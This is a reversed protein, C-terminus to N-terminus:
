TSCRHTPSRFNTQSIQTVHGLHGGRGSMKVLPPGVLITFYQRLRPPPSGGGIGFNGKEPLIKLNRPPPGGGGGRSGCMVKILKVALDNKSISAKVHSFTFVISKKFIIAAQSRFLPLHLYSIFYIFSHSQNLDLDDRSRTWLMKMESVAPGSVSFNEHPADIPLPFSFETYPLFWEFIKKELVPLNIKVFSPIYCRHSWAIM